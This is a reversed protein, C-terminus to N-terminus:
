RLLLVVCRSIDGLEEICARDTETPRMLARKCQVPMTSGTPERTGVRHPLSMGHHPFSLARNGLYPSILILYGGPSCSRAGSYTVTNVGCHVLSSLSWAEKARFPRGARALVFLRVRSDYLFLWPLEPGPGPSAETNALQYLITLGM